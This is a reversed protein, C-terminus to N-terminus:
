SLCALVQIEFTIHGKTRKVNLSKIHSTITQKKRNINISNNVMITSIKKEYNLIHNM